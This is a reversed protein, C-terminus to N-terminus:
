RRCDNGESMVQDRIRNCRRCRRPRHLRKMGNSCRQNIEAFRAMDGWAKAVERFYNEFGAPSIVEIILCPTEGANWFWFTVM